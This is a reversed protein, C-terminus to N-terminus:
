VGRDSGSFSNTWTQSQLLVWWCEGNRRVGPVSNRHMSWHKAFKPKKPYQLIKHLGISVTASYKDKEGSFVFSSKEMKLSSFTLNKWHTPLDTSMKWSFIKWLWLVQTFYVHLTIRKSMYEWWGQSVFSRVAVGVHTKGPWQSNKETLSHLWLIQSVKTIMLTMGSIVVCYVKLPLRLQAVAVATKNCLQLKINWFIVVTFVWHKYLLVM